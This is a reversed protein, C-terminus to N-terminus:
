RNTIKPVQDPVTVPEPFTLTVTTGGRLASQISATGGHLQMIFKVIALGLGAGTGQRSRASDARYFRDFVHALDAPAIGDGTDSVVIEAARNSTERADVIIQGCGPTHRLANAVLNSLARRLLGADAMVYGAGKAVLSVAREDAMARYFDCVAAVERDLELPQKDLQMGPQEARALFLLADVMQALREYEEAASEICARYEENSRTKTLALEAEGQLIHLPTRLEHAIDASFQSMRAFSEELRALLQDFNTALPRLELPWADDGVRRNLDTAGLEAFMSALRSLHRMERRAILYGAVIAIALVTTIALWLTRRYAALLDMEKSRSMAAQVTYGAGVALHASMLRYVAGDPTLWDAGKEDLNQSPRDAAQLHDFVDGQSAPAEIVSKGAADLMQVQIGPLMAAERRAEEQFITTGPPHLLVIARLEAIRGTLLQDDEQRLRDMLVWYMVSGSSAILAVSLLGYWLTLRVAISRPKKSARGDFNHAIETGSKSSM